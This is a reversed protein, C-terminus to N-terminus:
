KEIEADEPIGVVKGKKLLGQAIKFFYDDCIYYKEELFGTAKNPCFACQHAEPYKKKAIRDKLNQM